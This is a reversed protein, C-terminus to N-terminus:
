ELILIAEECALYRETGPSHEFGVIKFGAKELVRLSAVNHKAVRSHLPRITVEQLLLPLARSAIGKGWHDKAIWYGVCAQGDSHFMSVQGVLEGDLLIAQPVVSSDNLINRWLPFYAEENRPIVAAMANAEPDLQMQFLFPLDAELIPRLSVHNM